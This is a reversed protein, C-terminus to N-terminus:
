GYPLMKITRKFDSDHTMAAKGLARKRDRSKSGALHRKCARTRKIKKGSGTMSFRKKASKNTKQKPM